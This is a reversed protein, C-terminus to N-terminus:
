TKFDCKARELEDGRTEFYAESYIPVFNQRFRTVNKTFRSV